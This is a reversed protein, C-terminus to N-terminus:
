PNQDFLNPATRELRQAKHLYLIEGFKLWSEMDFDEHLFQVLVLVWNIDLMAIVM